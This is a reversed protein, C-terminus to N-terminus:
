AVMRDLFVLLEQKHSQHSSGLARPVKKPVELFLRFLRPQGLDAEVVQPMKRDAVQDVFQLDWGLYNLTYYPM